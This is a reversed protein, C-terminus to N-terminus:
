DELGNIDKLETEFENININNNSKNYLKVETDHFDKINIGFLIPKQHIIIKQWNYILELRIIM